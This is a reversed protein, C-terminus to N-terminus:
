ARAKLEKKLTKGFVAVVIGGVIIVAFLILAPNKKAFDLLGNSISPKSSASTTTAPATPQQPPTQVQPQPQPTAITTENTIRGQPNTATYTVGVNTVTQGAPASAQADKLAQFDASVPPPVYVTTPADAPSSLQKQEMPQTIVGQDMLSGSVPTLNETPGFYQTDGLVPALPEAPPSLKPTPEIADLVTQPIQGKAKFFTWTAPYKDYIFKWADLNSITVPGPFVGEADWSGAGIWGVSGGNSLWEVTYPYGLARATAPNYLGTLPLATGKNSIVQVIWNNKKSIAILDSSTGFTMVIYDPNRSVTYSM